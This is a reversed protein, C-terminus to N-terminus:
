NSVNVLGLESLKVVIKFEWPELSKGYSEMVEWVLGTFPLM